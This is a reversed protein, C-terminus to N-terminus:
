VSSLSSRYMITKQERSNELQLQVSVLLYKSYKSYRFELTSCLKNIKMLQNSSIYYKNLEWVPPAAGTVFHDGGELVGNGGLSLDGKTLRDHQNEAEGM